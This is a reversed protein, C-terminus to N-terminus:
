KPAIISPTIYTFGSTNDNGFVMNNGLSTMSGSGNNVFDNANSVVHSGDLRVSGFGHDIATTTHMIQSRVLSISVGGTGSGATKIGATGHAFESDRAYLYTKGGNTASLSVGFNTFNKIQSRVMELFVRTNGAADAASNSLTIVGNGSNSFHSDAVTIVVNGGVASNSVTLQDTNAVFLSNKLHITGVGNTFNNSYVIGANSRTIESHDLYLKSSSVIPNEFHIAEDQRSIVSNRLSVDIAGQMWIGYSSPPPSTGFGREIRTNDVIVSSLNSTATSNAYIGITCHRLFSDDVYLRVTTTADLRICAASVNTFGDISVKELHVAGAVQITVGNVGASFNLIQVNRLTVDGATNIVVADGANGVISGLAGPIAFIKVGKNIIVPATNYNASDLMWIEGGDQVATLAAPLLRCPLQVTCPNADNGNFSLYTRFLAANAVSATCLTVIWILRLANRLTVTTM